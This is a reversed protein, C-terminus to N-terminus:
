LRQNKLYHLQKRLLIMFLTKLAKYLQEEVAKGLIQKVEEDTPRRGLEANFIRYLDKVNVTNENVYTGVEGSLVM